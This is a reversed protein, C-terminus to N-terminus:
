REHLSERRNRARTEKLARRTTTQPRLAIACGSYRGVTDVRGANGSIKRERHDFGLLIVVDVPVDLRRRCGTPRTERFLEADRLQSPPIVCTAVLFRNGHPQLFLSNVHRHMFRNNCSAMRSIVSKGNMISAKPHKLISRFASIASRRPDRSDCIKQDLGADSRIFDLASNIITRRSILPVRVLRIASAPFM